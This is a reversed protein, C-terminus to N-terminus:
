LWSPKPRVKKKKFVKNIQEWAMQLSDIADDHKAKMNWDKVQLNYQINDRNFKIVGNAIDPQLQMIRTEKKGKPKLPIIRININEKKLRKKLNDLLYEQFAVAEFVLADIVGEYQKLKKV